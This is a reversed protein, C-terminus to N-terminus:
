SNPVMLRGLRDGISYKTKDDSKHQFRCCIHGKDPHNNPRLTSV